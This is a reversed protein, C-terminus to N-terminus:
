YPQVRTDHRRRIGHGSSTQLRAQLLILRLGREGLLGHRVAAHTTTSSTSDLDPVLLTLTSRSVIRRVLHTSEGTEKGLVAVLKPPPPTCHRKAHAKNRQGGRRSSIGCQYGAGRYAMRAPLRTLTKRVPLRIPAQLKDSTKLRENPEKANNALRTVQILTLLLSRGCRCPSTRFKRQAIRNQIRRRENPDTVASWDDEPTATATAQSSSSAESSSMVNTRYSFYTISRRREYEPRM